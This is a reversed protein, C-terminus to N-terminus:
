VDEPYLRFVFLAPQTAATSNRPLPPLTAEHVARLASRDLTASGSSREIRVNIVGGDRLIEFAVAVELTELTGAFPKRWSTFLARIVADRYWSFEDGM